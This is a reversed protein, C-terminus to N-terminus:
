LRSCRARECLPARGGVVILLENSRAPYMDLAFLWHRTEIHATMITLTRNSTEGGNTREVDDLGVAGDAVNGFDARADVFWVHM